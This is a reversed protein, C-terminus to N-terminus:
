GRRSPMVQDEGVLGAEPDFQGRLQVPGAVPDHRDVGASRIRGAAASERGARELRLVDGSHEVREHGGRGARQGDDIQPADDQGRSRRVFDRRQVEAEGAIEVHQQVDGPSCPAPRRRRRRCAKDDHRADRVVDLAGVPYVRALRQSDAGQKRDWLPDRARRDPPRRTVQPVAGCRHRFNGGPENVLDPSFVALLEDGEAARM